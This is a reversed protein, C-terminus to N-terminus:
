PPDRYDQEGRDAIELRSDRPESGAGIVEEGLRASCVQSDVVPQGLLRV